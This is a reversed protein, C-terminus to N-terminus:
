RKAATIALIADTILSLALGTVALVVGPLITIWWAVQLYARGEFMIAGWEPTPPQVGAGLFALSATAIIFLIADGVAYAANVRIVAPALDRHIIRLTSYGVLGSAVVYDRERLAITQGRGLRAYWAWDVAVLAIFAAPLGAPIPGLSRAPGVIVVLTLVLIVFPFAIFADVIRMLISDIWRQRSIGALTGILTGILLSVVVGAIAIGLDIRGGYATRVFVDRGLEDTGFPHSWSPPQLPNGLANVAGPDVAPVIISFLTIAALLVAGVALAPSAGFARRLYPLGLSRRLLPAESEIRTVDVNV